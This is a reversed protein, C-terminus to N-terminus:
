WHPNHVGKGMGDLQGAVAGLLRKQSRAKAAKTPLKNTKQAKKAAKAISLLIKQEKPDLNHKDMVTQADSVFQKQMSPQGLLKSLFPILNAM